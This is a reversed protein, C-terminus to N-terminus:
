FRTEMVLAHACVCVYVCMIMCSTSMYISKERALPESNFPVMMGVGEGGTFTARDHSSMVSDTQRRSFPM